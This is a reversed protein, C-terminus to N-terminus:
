LKAANLIQQPQNTKVKANLHVPLSKDKPPNRMLEEIHQILGAKSM